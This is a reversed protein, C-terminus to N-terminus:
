DALPNKLFNRWISEPSPRFLDVIREVPAHSLVLELLFELGERAIVKIGHETATARESDLLEDKGLFTVIVPIVEVGTTPDLKARIANARKHLKALKSNQNIAGSTCEVALVVRAKPEFVVGDLADSGRPNDVLDDAILGAFRFLRAVAREFERAKTGDQTFLLQRFRALGPDTVEYAAALPPPGKPENVLRVPPLDFSGIRLLLTLQRVNRFRATGTYSYGSPHARWRRRHLPISHSIIQNSHLTGFMGLTARERVARSGVVVTYMLEDACLRTAQLDWSAQVPAIFEARRTFSGDMVQRIGGAHLTVANLGDWPRELQRLTSDLFNMGGPLRYLVDSASDGRITLQHGSPFTTSIEDFILSSRSYVADRYSTDFGEGARGTLYSITDGNIVVSGSRVRDILEKLSDASEVLQHAVIYGTKPLHNLRLIEGPHQSELTCRSVLNHWGNDVRAAIVRFDVANWLSRSATVGDLFAAIEDEFRGM